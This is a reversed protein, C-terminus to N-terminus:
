KKINLTKLLNIYTESDTGLKEVFGGINIEKFKEAPNPLRKHIKYFEEVLGIKEDKTLTKRQSSDTPNKTMIKIVTPSRAIKKNTVSINEYSIESGVYRAITVFGKLHLKNTISYKQLTAIHENIERESFKTVYQNPPLILISGNSASGFITSINRSEEEKFKLQSQIYFYSRDM